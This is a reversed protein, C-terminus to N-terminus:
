VLESLVKCARMSTELHWPLLIRDRGAIMGRTKAITILGRYQSLLDKLLAGDSKEESSNAQLLQSPTTQILNVDVGVGLWGQHTSQTPCMRQFLYASQKAPRHDLISHSNNISRTPPLLLYESEDDPNVLISDTDIDFAHEAAPPTLANALSASTSAPTPASFMLQEPSLVPQSNTPTSVPTGTVANGQQPTSQSGATAYQISTSATSSGAKLKLMPRTGITVHTVAMLSINSATEAVQSQVMVNWENLENPEIPCDKVVVLRWRYKRGQETAKVIDLSTEWIERMIEVRQRCAIADQHYLCYTMTLALQGFSDSWSAAIWREDATQCYAVHLLKEEIRLPSEAVDSLTFTLQKTAPCALKVASGCAAFDNTRKVPPCRNYVEIALRTYARQSAILVTEPRQVFTLPVIQLAIDVDQPSSTPKSKVYSTLLHLFAACINFKAHPQQIPFPNIIYVIFTTGPKIDSTMAKGAAECAQALSQMSSDDEFKWPLLGDSIPSTTSRGHSGLHCSSYATEIRSLFIKASQSSSAQDPYICIAQVDKGGDAPELSFAEWFPLISTLAQLSENDRKMQIRPTQIKGIVPEPTAALEQVSLLDCGFVTRQMGESVSQLVFASQKVCGPELCAQLSSQTIQDVTLQIVKLYEESSINQAFDEIPLPCDLLNIIPWESADTQLLELLDFSDSVSQNASREDIQVDVSNSTRVEEGAGPGSRDTTTTELLPYSDLSDSTFDSSTSSQNSLRRYLGKRSGAAEKGVAPDRIQKSTPKYKPPFRPVTCTVSQTAAEKFENRDDDGTGFWFRGSAGYKNDRLSGSKGAPVTKYSGFQEDQIQNKEPTGDRNQLDSIRLSDETSSILNNTPRSYSANQARSSTIPPSAGTSRLKPRSPSDRNKDDKGPAQPTERDEVHQGLDMANDLVPDEAKTEGERTQVFVVDPADEMPVDGTQVSGKDPENFFDWDPEDTIGEAVFDAGGSDEFLDEDYSTAAINATAQGGGFLGVSHDQSGTTDQRDVHLASDTDEPTDISPELPPGPTAQSLTGDPPTPYIGSIVTNDQYSRPFVNLSDVIEEEAVIERSKAQDQQLQRAIRAAKRKGIADTRSGTDNYWDEAFKLPDSPPAKETLNIEVKEQSHEARTVCLSSPWLLNEVRYQDQMDPGTASCDQGQNMSPKVLVEVSLWRDNDLDITDLGYTALWSCVSRKWIKSKAALMSDEAPALLLQNAATSPSLLQPSQTTSEPHVYKALRGFPALWVDLSTHLGDAENNDLINSLQKATACPKSDTTIWVLGDPYLEVNVSCVLSTVSDTPLATVLHSTRSSRSRPVFFTRANLPIASVTEQFTRGILALVASIFLKRLQANRELLDFAKVTSGVPVAPRCGSCRLDADARAIAEQGNEEIEKKSLFLWLNGREHDLSVLFSSSRLRREANRLRLNPRKLISSSM